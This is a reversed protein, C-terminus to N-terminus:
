HELGSDISAKLAQSARHQVDAPLDKRIANVGLPLPLGTEGKWWAGLDVVTHLGEARHTLQGEHIILGADVEGAHVADMIRDFPLVPFLTTNPTSHQTNPSQQALYLQLALFASTMKGPIAIRKNALEDP